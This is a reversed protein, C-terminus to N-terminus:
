FWYGRILWAAYGALGVMISQTGAHGILRGLGAGDEKARMGLEVHAIRFAMLGALAGNLIRRDGGNLEVVAALVLTLPVNEAFNGHARFALSLPDATEDKGSSTSATNTSTSGILTNTALRQQSVRATLLLQYLALPLTWTGVIPLM